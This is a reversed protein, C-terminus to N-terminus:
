NALVQSTEGTETLYINRLIGRWQEYQENVTGTLTVTNNDLEITRPELEANLSNGLEEIAQVHIKAESRRDLGEKVTYIGAGIGVIGLLRANAENRLQRLAITEEYSMRRWERYPTEMQQEFTMYHDQLADVFMNDRQRIKRIRELTPDNEAPLRKISYIGRRDVDIHDGFAEPSFQRAFKLETIARINAIEAPKLRQRYLYLDNAIDNYLGQFPEENRSRITNDYAYKSTTSSYKKTYWPKGTADQATVQLELVEGDSKLIIGDLWVDMESQREPVVRVVGWNGTRQLTDAIKVPIFRAEAERVQLFIGEKEASNQDAGPDFIGIGIDLLEHEPIPVNSQLIPNHQTSKVTTSACGGILSAIILILSVSATKYKM